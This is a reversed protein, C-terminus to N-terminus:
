LHGRAFELIRKYIPFGFIRLIFIMRFNGFTCYESYLSCLYKSVIEMQYQEFKLFSKNKSVDIDALSTLFAHERCM